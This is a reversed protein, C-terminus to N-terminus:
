RLSNLKESIASITNLGNISIRATGSINTQIIQVAVNEHTDKLSELLHLGDIFKQLNNFKGDFEPLIKIALEICKIPEM